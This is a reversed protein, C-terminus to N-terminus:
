QAGLADAISDPVQGRSFQRRLAERQALESATFDRVPSTPQASAPPAGTSLLAQAERITQVAASFRSAIAEVDALTLKSIEDPTLAM